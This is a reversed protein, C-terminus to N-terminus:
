PPDPTGGKPLWPAMEQRLIRLAKGMQAEVTKVSIGLVNAIEAYRLGQRRSLEFVERCRGPLSDLAVGLAADIEDELVERLATPETSARTALYPESRQQVRDHRLVNLARNRTARFLYARLSEELVLTGRRRWLELLVDQVIEEAEARRRVLGEALRTLPAYHERFIMDFADQDGARLRDLLEHDAAM